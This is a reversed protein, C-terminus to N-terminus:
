SVEFGYGIQAYATDTKTQPSSYKYLSFYNSYDEDSIWIGNYNAEVKTSENYIWHAADEIDGQRIFWVKSNGMVINTATLLDCVGVVTGGINAIDTCIITGKGICSVYYKNNVKTYWMRTKNWSTPIGGWGTYDKNYTTSTITNTTPNIVTIKGRQYSGADTDDYANSVIINTGDYYMSAYGVGLYQVNLFKVFLGTEINYIQVYESNTEM